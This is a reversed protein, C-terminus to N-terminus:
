PTTSSARMSARAGSPTRAATSNTSSPSRGDHPIEGRVDPPMARLARLVRALRSFFGADARAGDVERRLIGARFLDLFGEVFMESCGYLGAAFPQTHIAAGDAADAGLRGLLARFDVPHRHRLILAHAVADGLTGIGIQLTGGDPVTGAAHLGAAFDAPLIPERPPGFLPFDTAPGDLLVDFEQEAIAADGAMFPLESNVQGAFLFRARGAGRLALLDRTLDPNCSLSYPHPEEARRAVLQGIVNVGRDLVCRLADTYNVAIYNQQATPSALSRGALFFFEDIEINGPVTGAHVAAAYDLAPYGAFLRRALPDVFRRELEHHARPVRPHAGHLHDAPDLTRSRGPTSRTPSTTPRASGSRCPSCSPRASASSSRTPSGRPITSLRRPPARVTCTGSTGARIQSSARAMRPLSGRWPTACGAPGRTRAYHMPGGRFPAFGTAFIMAGDVIEEDTVVGERLCAVCVNLMPLILRDATDPPPPTADHRKIARGDKWVYLGKGTKRGLEGRAVKDKLWQPADPMDHALSARLTEAVHLCIDLGVQDALELPGMPMGFDEAAKDITEKAVGADLMVIAELLYPTLARNVLFGPASKVPAPLRDIRGLFGRAAALVEDAVQDHSVVEVLQMRSVPNFFHIGVLREPRRLGERLQELPISSTNTALIAGPKM